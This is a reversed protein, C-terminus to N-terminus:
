SLWNIEHDNQWYLAGASSASLALVIIVIGTMTLDYNEVASYMMGSVTILGVTFSHIWTKILSDMDAINAAIYGGAFMTAIFVPIGILYRFSGSIDNLLPYDKALANYGVAIFLYALQLCLIVVIIFVSGIAIAKISKM